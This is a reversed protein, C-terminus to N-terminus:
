LLFFSLWLGEEEEEEEEDVGNVNAEPDPLTACVGTLIELALQITRLRQEIRDLGIEAPSRHDSKPSGKISMKEV